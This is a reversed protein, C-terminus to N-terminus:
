YVTVVTECKQTSYFLPLKSNHQQRNNKAAFHKFLYFIVLTNRFIYTINDYMNQVSQVGTEFDVLRTPEDFFCAM